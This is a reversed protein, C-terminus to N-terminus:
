KQKKWYRMIAESTIEERTTHGAKIRWINDDSMKHEFVISYCGSKLGVLKVSRLHKLAKNLVREHINPRVVSLAAVVPEHELLQNYTKPAQSFLASLIAEELNWMLTQASSPATAAKYAEYVELCKACNVPYDRLIDFQDPESVLWENEQDIHVGCAAASNWTSSPSYWYTSSNQIKAKKEPRVLTYKPMNYLHVTKPIKM